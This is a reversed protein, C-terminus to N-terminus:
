VEVRLETCILESYDKLVECIEGANKDVGEVAGHTAKKAVADGIMTNSIYSEQATDM